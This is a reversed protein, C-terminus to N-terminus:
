FICSNSSKMSPITKALGPTGNLHSLTPNILNLPTYAS